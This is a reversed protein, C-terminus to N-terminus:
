HQQHPGPNALSTHRSRYASDRRWKEEETLSEWDPARRPDDDALPAQQEPAAVTHAAQPPSQRQIQQHTVNRGVPPGPRRRQTQPGPIDGEPESLAADAPPTNTHSKLAAIIVPHLRLPFMRMEEDNRRANEEDAAGDLGHANDDSHLWDHVRENAVSRPRQSSSEAPTEGVGHILM